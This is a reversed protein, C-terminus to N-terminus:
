AKVQPKYDLVYRYQKGCDIVVEKQERKLIRVSVTFNGYGDHSFVDDFVDLLKKKVQENIM